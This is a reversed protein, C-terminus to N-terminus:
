RFWGLARVLRHDSGADYAAGTTLGATNMGAYFVHDVYPGIYEQFTLMPELIPDNGRANFDGAVIVPGNERFQKVWWSVRQIQRARQGPEMGGLETAQQEAWTAKIHVTCATTWAGGIAVEACTLWQVRSHSEEGLNITQPNRLPRPTALVVYLPRDGCEPHAERSQGLVLNWDPHVEQFAEVQSACVEQMMVLQPNYAAIHAEVGVLAAPSGGYMAAGAINHSVVRIPHPGAADRKKAKKTEQHKAPVFRSDAAEAADLAILGAAFLAIFVAGIIRRKM